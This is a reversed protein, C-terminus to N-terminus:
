ESIIFHEHVIHEVWESSLISIVTGIMLGSISSALYDHSLLPHPMNKSEIAKVM